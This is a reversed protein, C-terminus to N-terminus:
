RVHAVIMANPDELPPEDDIWYNCRDTQAFETDLYLPITRVAGAFTVFTVFAGFGPHEDV